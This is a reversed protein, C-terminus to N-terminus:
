QQWRVWEWRQTDNNFREVWDGPEAYGLRAVYYGLAVEAEPMERRRAEAAYLQRRDRNEDDILRQEDANLEGRRVVLGTHAEGTVHRSHLARIKPYRDAMSKKLAGEDNQSMPQADVLMSAYIVRSPDRLMAGPQQGPAPAVPPLGIDEPRVVQRPAQGTIAQLNQRADTIVLEMRGSLNVNVELPAQQQLVVEHRTCGSIATLALTSVIILIPQNMNIRM